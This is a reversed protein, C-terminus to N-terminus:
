RCSRWSRRAGSSRRRARRRACATSSTTSARAAGRPDVRHGARHVRAAHRPLRELAGGFMLHSLARHAWWTVELLFVVKDVPTDGGDAAGRQRSHHNVPVGLEECVRWIPDYARRTSRPSGPARAACRPAARRRHPGRRAGLPDRRGRRRRRAAPDARHRRPPRARRCLLRRALPQARAPGGLAARGRARRGGAAAGDLSSKPYFPPVTNPFLVEAVIGDAELDALRRETDWNRSANPDRSTPSRACTTPSGHTSSTSTPRARPLARYEHIEGGAHGDASIVVYRDDAPVRNGGNATVTRRLATVDVNARERSPTLRAKGVM